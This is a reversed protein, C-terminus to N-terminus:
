TLETVYKVTDYQTGSLNRVKVVSDVAAYAAARKGEEILSMSQGQATSCKSFAPQKGLACVIPSRGESHAASM